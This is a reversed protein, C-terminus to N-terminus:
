NAFSLRLFLHFPNLCALGQHHMDKDWCKSASVLPERFKLGSICLNLELIVLAVCIFGRELFQKLNYFISYNYISSHYLQLHTLTRLYFNFIIPSVLLFLTCLIPAITTYHMNPQKSTPVIWISYHSEMIGFITTM